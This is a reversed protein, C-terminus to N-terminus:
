KCGRAQIVVQGDILEYKADIARCILDLKHYFTENNLDATVTCKKLVESDYVINIGYAKSLENFVKEVPADEYHERQSPLAAPIVLPEELLAKQFKQGTKEYTLQQNPTLITGGPQQPDPTKAKNNNNTRQSYVSVKGTRVTVQITANKEFSRVSFSTGLVQAVIENAFVRFPRDPKKTVQFFAEGSLYVERTDLSDFNSAYSIRSQPALTVCSGDPLTIVAQNNSTNTNEVLQKSSIIAAYTFQEAEHNKQLLLYRIGAIGIVVAAAAAYWWKRSIGMLRAPQESLAPQERITRLLQTTEEEIEQSTITQQEIKISELVRRAEAVILHKDPNRTLWNEWFAASEKNNGHVWRIFDEDLVFDTIDYMRFDKM